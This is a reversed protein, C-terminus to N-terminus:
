NALIPKSIIKIRETKLIARVVRGSSLRQWEDPACLDLDVSREFIPEMKAVASALEFLGVDGFIILDVDSDTQESGRAISGFVFAESIRERFPGLEDPVVDAIGFTKRMISRLEEYIPSNTNVSYVLQNRRKAAVLVGAEILPM